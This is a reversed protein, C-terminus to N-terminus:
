IFHAVVHKVQVGDVVSEEVLRDVIRITFPHLKHIRARRRLLLCRARAETRRLAISRARCSRNQINIWFLFLWRQSRIYLRALAQDRM